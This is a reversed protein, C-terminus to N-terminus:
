AHFTDTKCADTDADTDVGIVGHNQFEVLCKIYTVVCTYVKIHM